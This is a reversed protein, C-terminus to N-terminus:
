AWGIRDTSNFTSILTRCYKPLYEHPMACFIQAPYRLRLSECDFYKGSAQMTTSKNIM